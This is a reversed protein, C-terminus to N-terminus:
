RKLEPHHVVKLYSNISKKKKENRRTKEAIVLLACNGKEAQNGAAIAAGVGTEDRTCEDV